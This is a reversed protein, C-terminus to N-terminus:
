LTMKVWYPYLLLKCFKTFKVVIYLWLSVRSGELNTSEGGSNRTQETQWSTRGALGISDECRGHPCM